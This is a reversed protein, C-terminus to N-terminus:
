LKAKRSTRGNRRTMNLYGVRHEVCSFQWYEGRGFVDYVAERLRRGVMSKELFGDFCGLCCFWLDIRLM